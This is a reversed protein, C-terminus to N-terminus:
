QPCGAAQVAAVRAQFEPSAAFAQRVEERTAAGSDIRGFWYALGASDTGRRLFSKYLDIVYQTTRQAAPRAADISQYESSFLFLQSITDAEAVVNSACAATRFRSEWYGFGANDPLRQLLGRYFDLLLGRHPAVTAPGFVSRLFAAFEGSFMFDNLLAARPKGAALQSVWFGRGAVDAERQFFTRYLDSVYTFDGTMKTPYEGGTFFLASLVFLVEDAPVALAAMRETERLWFARGDFDAARGFIAEYYAGILSATDYVALVFLRDATAGSANTARIAVEFLGIATPTGSITDGSLSIGPPLEGGLISFVVGANGGSTLLRHSYAVGLGGSSLAPTAIELSSATSLLRTVMPIGDRAGAAVIRGDPQVAIATVTEKGPGFDVFALGNTGFGTDPTGNALFRAVFGRPYLPNGETGAVLVRGDSLAILGTIRTLRSDLGAIPAFGGSGFATDPAGTSLLRAVFFSRSTTPGSMGTALLKGDATGALREIFTAGGERQLTLVGGTGFTFDAGGNSLYKRLIGNKADTALVGGDALIAPLHGAVGSGFNFGPDNAGGPLFRAFGGGGSAHGRLFRGDAYTELTSEASKGLTVGYPDTVFDLIPQAGGPHSFATDESGDALIRRVYVTYGMASSGSRHRTLYLTAGATHPAIRNPEGPPAATTAWVVNGEPDLRTLGNHGPMPITMSGDAHMALGFLEGRPYALGPTIEAMGAMGHIVTGFGTDRAGTSTTAVVRFGRQYQLFTADSPAPALTAPRFPHHPYGGMDVQEFAWAPDSAGDGLVRLIDISGGGQVAVLYRNGSLVAVDVAATSSHSSLIRVGNANFTTDLEGSTTLRLLAASGSIVGAVVARGDALPRVSVLSGLFNILPFRLGGNFSPDKAGNPLLRMAAPYQVNDLTWTGVALISGDPMVALDSVTAFGNAGSLAIGNTGFAPDQAGSPTLRVVGMDGGAQLAILIGGDAAVALGRLYAAQLKRVGGVGFTADLQGDATLKAVFPYGRGIADAYNGAALVRGDAAHALREVIGSPVGRLRTVGGSGYTADLQGTADVRLVVPEMVGENSADGGLLLKGDAQRLSSYGGATASTTQAPIFLGYDGFSPDVDGPRAVAALSLLLSCALLAIRM